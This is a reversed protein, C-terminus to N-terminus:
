GTIPLESIPISGYIYNASVWGVSGSPLQIQVWTASNNRGLLVLTQGRIVATFAEFSTGPGSRVNLAGTAIVAVNSPQTVEVVPLSAIEVNAQVNSANAWGVVGSATRVQLWTGDENRGLLAVTVDKTVVAASPYIAGPGSRVNIASTIVVASATTPLTDPTRDTVVPLSSIPVNSALLSANVWGEVNSTERILVWSSNSNRGLLTVREGGVVVAVVSYQLGPGSRVNLAGTAVVATTSTSSDLVPLSSVDQNVGVYSTKVWGEQGSYLRVKIWSGDHNRGVVIVAQGKYVITVVGHAVGPGSRVNLAGTNVVAIVDDQAVLTASRASAAPNVSSIAQMPISILLVLLIGVLTHKKVSRTKM